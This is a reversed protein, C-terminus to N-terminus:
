VMINSAAGRMVAAEVVSESKEMGHSGKYGHECLHANAANAAFPETRNPEYAPWNQNQWNPEM